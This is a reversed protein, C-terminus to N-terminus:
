KNISNHGKRLKLIYVADEKYNLVTFPIKM